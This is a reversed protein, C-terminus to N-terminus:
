FFCLSVGNKLFELFLVVNKKVFFRENNEREFFVALSFFFSWVTAKKFCLFVLRESSQKAGGLLLSLREWVM